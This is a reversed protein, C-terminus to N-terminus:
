LACRLRNCVSVLIRAASMEENILDIARERRARTKAKGDLDNLAETIRHALAAVHLAVTPLETRDQDNM